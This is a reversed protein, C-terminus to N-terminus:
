GKAKSKRTDQTKDGTDRIITEEVFREVLEISKGMDEISAGYKAFKVMDCSTLFERLRDKQEDSLKNSFRLSELFEETTMDPANLGFRAEIYQRFIYSLEFYFPKIQQKELYNKKKLVALATRAIEWAPKVPVSKDTEGLKRYKRWCYIAVIISFIIGSIILLLIWTSPYNLPPHIDRIDEAEQALASSSWFCFVLSLLISNM